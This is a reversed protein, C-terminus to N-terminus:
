QGLRPDEINTSINTDTIMIAFQVTLDFHYPLM